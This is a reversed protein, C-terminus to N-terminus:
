YYKPGPGLVVEFGIPRGGMQIKPSGSTGNARMKHIKGSKVTFQFGECDTSDYFMQFYMIEETITETFCNSGPSETIVSTKGYELYKTQSPSEM